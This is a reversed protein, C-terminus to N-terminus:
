DKKRGRIKSKPTKKGAQGDLQALLDKEEQTPRKPVDMLVRVFMNGRSSQGLSPVGKGVVRLVGGVQTGPPIALSITEGDITRITEEGGLVLRPYTTTV